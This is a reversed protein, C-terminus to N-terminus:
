YKTVRLDNRHGMLWLDWMAVSLKLECRSLMLNYRWAKSESLKKEPQMNHVGNMITHMQARPRLAACRVVASSESQVCSTPSPPLLCAFLHTQSISLLFSFFTRFIFLPMLYSFSARFINWWQCIYHCDYKKNEGLTERSEHLCHFFSHFFRLSSIMKKSSNASRHRKFNVRLLAFCRPLMLLSFNAWIFYYSSSPTSFFKEWQKGFFLLAQSSLILLVFTSSRNM